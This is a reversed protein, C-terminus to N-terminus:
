YGRDEYNTLCEAGPMREFVWYVYNYIWNSRMAIGYQLIDRAEDIAAPRLQSMAAICAVASHVRGATRGSATYSMAKSLTM